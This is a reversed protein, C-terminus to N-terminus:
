VGQGNIAAVVDVEVVAGRVIAGRIVMQRRIAVLGVREAAEGRAGLM